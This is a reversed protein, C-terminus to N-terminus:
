DLFYTQQQRAVKGSSCHHHLIVWGDMHQELGLSPSDVYLRISSERELWNWILLLLQVQFVWIGPQTDLPTANLQSSNMREQGIVQGVCLM